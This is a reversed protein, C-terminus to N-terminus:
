DGNTFRSTCQPCTFFPMRASGTTVLIFLYFFYFKDCRYNKCSVYFGQEHGLRQSSTGFCIKQLPWFVRKMSKKRQFHIANLAFTYGHCLLHCLLCNLYNASKDTALRRSKGQVQLYLKSNNPIPIYMKVLHAPRVVSRYVSM